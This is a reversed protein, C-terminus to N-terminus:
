HTGETKEQLEKTQVRFQISHPQTSKYLLHYNM